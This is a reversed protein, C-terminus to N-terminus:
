NSSSNDSTKKTSKLCCNRTLIWIWPFRTVLKWWEQLLNWHELQSKCTAQSQGFTQLWALKQIEELRTKWYIRWSIKDTHFTIEKNKHCHSLSKNSSHFRSTSSNPRSLPREKAALRRPERAEQLTSSTLKVWSM